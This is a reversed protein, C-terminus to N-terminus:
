TVHFLLSIDSYVTVAFSAGCLLGENLTYLDIHVDKFFTIALQGLVATVGLGFQPVHQNKNHSEFALPQHQGPRPLAQLHSPPSVQGGPEEERSRGWRRRGPRRRGAAPLKWATHVESGSTMLLLPSFFVFRIQWWEWRKKSDRGTRRRREPRQWSWWRKNVLSQRFLFKITKLIKQYKKNKPSNALQPLILM